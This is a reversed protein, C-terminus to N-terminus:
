QQPRYTHLTNLANAYLLKTLAATLFVLLSPHRALIRLAGLLRKQRAADIM